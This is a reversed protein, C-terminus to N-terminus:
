SFRLGSAEAIRVLNELGFADVPGLAGASLIEGRAAAAAGHALLAATMAYPEPGDIRSQALRTGWRDFVEAVVVTSIAGLKEADPAEPVREAALSGLRGALRDVGPIRAAAGLLPAATSAATSAGGLWGLFVDIQSLQPAYRPLGFQESGGISVATRTSGDIDFDRRRVGAVEDRLAGGSFRYGPALAMGMISRVTGRSAGGRADGDLFYGVQVISAARTSGAAARLALAGVLNGPLWDHGFAPVLAAGTREARAGYREFVDRIFPSEGTSDLYAAGADIVARVVPGGLEIFPGATDVVVDGPRIVDGLRAADTIDVVATELGGTEASLVRLKSADRGALVPSLGAAVMARATRAGTYGTAGLLIVRRM